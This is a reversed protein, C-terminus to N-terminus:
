SDANSFGEQMNRSALQQYARHAMDVVNNPRFQNILGLGKQREAASGRAGFIQESYEALDVVIREYRYYCLAVLDIASPGYGQYFWAVERETNWIGGVGGGIFMLDREKAALLPEDWDVIAVEGGAGALVNRGHLDSHCIVLEPSRGQLAEGLQEARNVIRAIEDYQALWFAALSAAIPDDYSARPMAEHYAKVTARWRPSYNERPVREFLTPPLKTAHVARMTAGLEIWQAQSLDAEFGTQGEFYPYLTWDFGYGHVWLPGAITAIPAVVQRIGQARLFAPISVAVESFPGGRLKLLYPTGANDVVRYLANHLWGLPLFDVSVAPLGYHARLCDIITDDSISPKLLM